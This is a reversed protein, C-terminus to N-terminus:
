EKSTVVIMPKRVYARKKWVSNEIGPKQKNAHLPSTEVNACDENRKTAKYYELAQSKWPLDTGDTGQPHVNM